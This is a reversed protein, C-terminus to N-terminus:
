SFKKFPKVTMSEFITQPTSSGTQNLGFKSFLKLKRHNEFIKGLRVYVIPTPFPIIKENCYM